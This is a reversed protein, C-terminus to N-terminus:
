LNEVKSFSKVKFEGTKVHKQVHNKPSSHLITTLFTQSQDKSNELKLMPGLYISPTLTYYGFIFNLDKCYGKM